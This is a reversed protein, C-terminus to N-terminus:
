RVQQSRWEEAIRPSEGPPDAFPNSVDLRSSSGRAGVGAMGADSATAPQLSRMSARRQLEREGAEEMEHNALEWGGDVGM